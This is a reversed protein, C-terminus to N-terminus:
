KLDKILSTLFTDVELVINGSPMGDNHWQSLKDRFDHIKDITTEDEEVITKSFLDLEDLRSM